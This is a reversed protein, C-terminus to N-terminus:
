ILNLDSWIIMSYMIRLHMVTGILATALDKCSTLGPNVKLVIYDFTHTASLNELAAIAQKDRTTHQQLDIM